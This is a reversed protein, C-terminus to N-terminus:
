PAVRLVSRHAGLRRASARLLIVALGFHTTAAVLVHLPVLADAAGERAVLLAGIVPAAALPLTVDAEAVFVSLTLVVLLATQVVASVTTSSVGSASRAGVYLGAVVFLTALLTVEILLAMIVSAPAALSSALAGIGAALLAGLPVLVVGAGLFGVAIAAAAAGLLIAIRSLPLVLLPELVRRDKASGLRQQALSVLAFLQIAVLSPLAAAVTLRAADPSATTVDQVEIAFPRAASAPAGGSRLAERVLDIRLDEVARLAVATARRSPESAARQEVVVRAPVDTSGAELLVAVHADEGAVALTAEDDTRVRMGADRLHEAAREVLSADGEVAVTYRRTSREDRGTEIAFVVPTMAAAILLPQLLMARWAAKDRRLDRLERGAVLRIERLRM